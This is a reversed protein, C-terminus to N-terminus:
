IPQHLRKLGQYTAAYSILYVPRYTSTRKNPLISIVDMGIVDKWIYPPDKQHCMVDKNHDLSQAM